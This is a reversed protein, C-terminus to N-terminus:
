QINQCISHKRRNSCYAKTGDGIRRQTSERGNRQKSGYSMSQTEAQHGITSHINSRGRQARRETNTHTTQQQALPNITRHCHQIYRGQQRHNRTHIGIFNDERQDHEHLVQLIRHQLM